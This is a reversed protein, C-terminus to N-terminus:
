PRRVRSWMFLPRTPLLRTKSRLRAFYPNRDYLRYLYVQGSVIKATDVTTEASGAQPRRLLAWGSDAGKITGTVTYSSDSTARTGSGSHCSSALITGAVLITVLTKQM